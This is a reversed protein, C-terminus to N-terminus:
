FEEPDIGHLDCVRRVRALSGHVVGDVGETTPGVGSEAFAARVAERHVGTETPLTLVGDDEFVVAEYRVHPSM